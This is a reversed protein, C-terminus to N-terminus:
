GFHFLADSLVDKPVMYDELQVVQIQLQPRTECKTFRPEM